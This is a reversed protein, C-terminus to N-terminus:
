INTISKLVGSRGIAIRLGLKKNYNDNSSCTADGVFHEGNPSDIVVKTYGGKPEPDSLNFLLKQYSLKGDYIRSHLVRVKYGANRLDQVTM